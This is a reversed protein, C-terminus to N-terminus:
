KTGKKTSPKVEGYTEMLQELVSKGLDKDEEKPQQLKLLRMKEKLDEDTLNLFEQHNVIM